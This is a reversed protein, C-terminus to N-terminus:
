EDFTHTQSIQEKSLAFFDYSVVDGGDPVPDGFTADSYFSNGDDLTIYSWIHPGGSIGSVGIVDYGLMKLMLNYTAAYGQCMSKGKYLLDYGTNFKESTDYEYTKCIYTYINRINEEDSLSVGINGKAQLDKLIDYAMDYFVEQRYVHEYYTSTELSSLTIELAVKNMKANETSILSSVGYIDSFLEIYESTIDKFALDMAEYIGSNNFDEYNMNYYITETEVGAYAMTVFFRKFEEETMPSYDEIYFDEYDLFEKNIFDNSKNEFNSLNEEIFAQSNSIEYYDNEIGVLEKLYDYDAEDYVYIVGCIAVILVILIMM